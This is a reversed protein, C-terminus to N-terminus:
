PYPSPYPYPYPYPYPLNSAAGPVSTTEGDRTVTCIAQVKGRLELEDPPTAGEQHVAVKFVAQNPHGTPTPTPSVTPNPNPNRNTHM